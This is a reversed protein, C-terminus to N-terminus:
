ANKATQQKSKLISAVSFGKLKEEFSMETSRRLNENM